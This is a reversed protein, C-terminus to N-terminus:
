FLFKKNIRNKLIIYLFKILILFKKIPNNKIHSENLQKLLIKIVEILSHFLNSNSINTDHIRYYCLPEDIFGIPYEKTIRFWMDYDESIFNEDFPGLLEFCEKKILTGLATIIDGTLLVEYIDKNQIGKKFCKKIIPKYDTYKKNTIKNFNIFYADTYVLGISKNNEMFEVEKEIMQPAFMDDSALFSIYKGKALNLGNNLTKCIGENKKSIFNIDIDNNNIFEIIVRETSDTSGDNIVIIEINSYTQNIVSKLCDIIYKEHNYAPIIVSVLPNNNDLKYGGIFSM